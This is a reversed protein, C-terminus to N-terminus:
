YRSKCAGMNASGSTQKPAAQYAIRHAGVMPACGLASNGWCRAWMHVRLSYEGVGVACSREDSLHKHNLHTAYPQLPSTEHLNTGDNGRTLVM